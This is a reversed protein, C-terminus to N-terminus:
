SRLQEVWSNLIEYPHPSPSALHDLPVAALDNWENWEGMRGSSKPSPRGLTLACTEAIAWKAFKTLPNVAGRESGTFIQDGHELTGGVLPESRGPDDPSLSIDQGENVLNTGLNEDADQYGKLVIEESTENM